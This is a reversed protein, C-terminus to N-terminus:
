VLSVSKDLTRREAVVFKVRVTDEHRALHLCQDYRLGFRAGDCGVGCRTPRHSLVSPIRYVSTVAWLAHTVHMASYRAWNSGKSRRVPPHSAHGPRDNSAILAVPCNPIATALRKKATPASTGRTLDRMPAIAVCASTLAKKPVSPK